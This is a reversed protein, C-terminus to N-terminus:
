MFQMIHENRVIATVIRCIEKEKFLFHLQTSTPNPYRDPRVQTRIYLM